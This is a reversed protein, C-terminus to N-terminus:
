VHARGIEFMCIYRGVKTLRWERALGQAQTSAQFVFVKGTGGEGNIVDTNKEAQRM